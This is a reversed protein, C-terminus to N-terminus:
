TSEQPLPLWTKFLRWASRLRRISVRLQHVHEASAALYVGATDVEALVATNRIIQDLCEEAILRLAQGDSHKPTLHVKHATAPGWFAAIAQARADIQNQEKGHLHDLTHALQALADGRESKSRADLTLAHDQQWHRAMGFIASVHGSVLEFEVECIPLELNGARLVGTDYALEILGAPHEIHRQLRYVDTEYRVALDGKIRSLASEVDSEAYVSLDLIPGPRPHNLEIRSISNTGPMKLTQVWNQGEKRL